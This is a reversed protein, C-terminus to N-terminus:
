LTIAETRLRNATSRTIIHLAAHPVSCDGSAGGGTLTSFGTASSGGALKAPSNGHGSQLRSRLVSVSRASPSYKIFLSYWPMGSERSRRLDLEAAPLLARISGPETQAAGAPRELNELDNPRPPQALEVVVSVRDARLLRVLQMAEFPQIAVGLRRRECACVGPTEALAAAAAEPRDGAFAAAGRQVADVAGRAASRVLRQVHHHETM